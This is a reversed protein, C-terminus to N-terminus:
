EAAIAMPIDEPHSVQALTELPDHGGRRGGTDLAFAIVPKLHPKAAQFLKPEEQLALGGVGTGFAAQDM